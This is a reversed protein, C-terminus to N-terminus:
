HKKALMREGVSMELNNLGIKMEKVKKFSFM